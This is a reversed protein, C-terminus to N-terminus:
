CWRRINSSFLTTLVFDRLHSPGIQIELHSSYTLGLQSYGIQKGFFFKKKKPIKFTTQVKSVILFTDNLKSSLIHFPFLTYVPALSLPPRWFIPAKIYCYLAFHTSKEWLFLNQLFFLNVPNEISGKRKIRRIMKWSHM